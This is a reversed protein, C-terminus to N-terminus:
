IFFLYFLFFIYFYFLIFLIFFFYLYNFYILIFQFLYFIFLIFFFFFNFILFGKLEIKEGLFLLFQDFLPSSQSNSFLQNEHSQDPLCYLVGFKFNKVVHQKEIEILEHVIKPNKVRVFNQPNFNQPHTLSKILSDKGYRKSFRKKKIETTEIMKIEEGNYSRIIGYMKGREEMASIAVVGVGEVKGM